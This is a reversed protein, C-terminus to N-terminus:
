KCRTSGEPDESHDPTQLQASANPLGNWLEGLKRLALRVGRQLPAVSDNSTTFAIRM